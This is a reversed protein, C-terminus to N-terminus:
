ELRNRYCKIRFLNKGSILVTSIYVMQAFIKIVVEKEINTSKESIYSIENQILSKLGEMKAYEAEMSYLIHLLNIRFM